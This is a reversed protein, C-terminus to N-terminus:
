SDPGRCRLDSLMLVSEAYDYASGVVAPYHLPLVRTEYARTGPEIGPGAVLKAPNTYHYYRLRGLQHPSNSERVRSWSTGHLLPYHSGCSSFHHLLWPHDWDLRVPAPLAVIGLTALPHRGAWATRSLSQFGIPRLYYCSDLWSAPLCCFSRPERALM